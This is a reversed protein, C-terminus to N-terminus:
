DKRRGDYRIYGIPNIEIGHDTVVHAPHMKPAGGCQSEIERDFENKLCKRGLDTM